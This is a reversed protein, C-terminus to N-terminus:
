LPCSPHWAAMIFLSTASMEGRHMRSPYDNTDLPTEMKRQGASEEMVRLLLLVNEKGCGMGLVWMHIALREELSLLGM